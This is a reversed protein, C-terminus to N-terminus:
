HLCQPCQLQGFESFDGLYCFYAHKPCAAILNKSDFQSLNPKPQIVQDSLHRIQNTSSTLVDSVDSPRLLMLNPHLNPFERTWHTPNLGRVALTYTQDRTLFCIRFFFPFFFVSGTLKTAQPPFLLQHLSTYLQGKMDTTDTREGEESEVM